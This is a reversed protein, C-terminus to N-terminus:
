CGAKKLTGSISLDLVQHRSQALAVANRHSECDEELGFIQFDTFNGYTYRRVLTDTLSSGELLPKKGVIV